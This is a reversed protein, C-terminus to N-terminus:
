KWKNLAKNASLQQMRAVKLAVEALSLSVFVYCFFDSHRHPTEFSCVFDFILEKVFM